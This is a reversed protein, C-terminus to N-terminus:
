RLTAGAERELATLASQVAADAEADTLTRDPARLSLSFAVSKRGAAIQSGTYVDFLACDALLEGANQRIIEELQAAPVDDACVVALDRSMAPFKPLPVYVREPAAVELMTRFDLEGCFVEQSLEFRAAALPHLQGLVGLFVGDAFVEACRGPHFAPHDKKANYTVNEVRFGTLITEVAGKLAFFDLEGYGGLAIQPREDPLTENEQPRYTMCLEWLRAKKNRVSENRALAELMSPLATTRMVSRDEGLPNEIVVSGGPLGLKEYDSPSIFSYTMIENYGMARCLEGLVRVARQSATLAGPVTEGASLSSPIRNYGYLRAVEEALDAMGEIDARWSPVAVAEGEVVFGLRALCAKMDAEPIETGLLANIKSAELPLTRVPPLAGHVDEVGDCVVGAGLQEILECARELAPLVNERDLGKEFRSSADTRLGLALATRRVSPGNFTASELVIERTKETIESNAGGMVGAVGVPRSEDAIVLMDPSLARGQGDLTELSEGSAARRVVIKEGQLCAYDFAHMPQGYELMVYNTIDVINNIPRVGCTRLRARMWLPSPAIKVDRVVRAAYRPCLDADRIEVRLGHAGGGGKVTPTHLSLPKDFTAASERALGIVSLCDPRNNTIEFDVSVDRLKLADRIDQGPALCDPLLFIGNEAAEPFDHTTLDLEKLSCLMGESTVGRLAGTFIEKGGPLKAGDLAAPVTCGPTVNSAGTVITLERGGVDIKCITLRDANPHPETFLVKGVVVNQIEAGLDEFGDAKSGSLTMADAYEKPSCSLQVFDSLWDLSLKM